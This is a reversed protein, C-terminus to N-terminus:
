DTRAFAGAILLRAILDAVDANPDAALACDVAALVPKGDGCADLFVCGARDLGTTQVGAGPRTFLIGEGKWEVDGLDVEEDFRNRSWVTAAPTSDFWAWRAAAHPRLGLCGIAVEDLLALQSAELAPEDSATHAETWMRDLKAVAPLFPLEAAPEFASLFHEFDAGYHMLVPTRAPHADAYVGAAATFWEDGVLRRVCPYNAALADTIAKMATNRYVAFGPQATLCALTPEAAGRLAAAFADQFAALSPASM